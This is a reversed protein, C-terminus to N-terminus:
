SCIREYTENHVVTKTLLDRDYQMLIDVTDSSKFYHPSAIDCYNNVTLSACGSLPAILLGM